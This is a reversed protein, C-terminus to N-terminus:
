NTLLLVFKLVEHQHSLLSANVTQLSARYIETTKWWVPIGILISALVSFIVGLRM